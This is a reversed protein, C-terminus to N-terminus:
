RRSGGGGAAAAGGGAGGGGAAAAEPDVNLLNPLVLVGLLIMWWYKQFFSPEAEPEGEVKTKKERGLGDYERFKFLPRPAEVVGKILTESELDAERSRRKKKLSSAEFSFSVLYGRIDKYFILLDKLSAMESYECAGVSTLLEEGEYGAGPIRLQYLEDATCAKGFETFLTNSM